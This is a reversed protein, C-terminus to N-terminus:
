VNVSVVQESVQEVVPAGCVRNKGSRKASYMAEDARHVFEELTETKRHMAVGFSCTVKSDVGFFGQEVVKRLKEAFQIAKEQDAESVLLMFEEGGWRSFVDYIRINETMLRAVEKLIRDGMVHGYRDNIDKFDDVDIMVLSLPKHHRIAMGIQKKLGREFGKRNLVGTLGDISAQKALVHNRAEMEQKKTFYSTVLTLLSLSFLMLPFYAPITAHRPPKEPESLPETPVGLRSFASLASYTTYMDGGFRGPRTQKSMIYHLIANQPLVELQGMSSMFWVALNTAKLSASSKLGRHYRSFAGEGKLYHQGFLYDITRDVEMNSEVYERREELDGHALSWLAVFARFVFYSDTSARGPFDAYGGSATDYTSVIFSTIRKTEADSFSTKQHNHLIALARLAFSTCRLSSNRGSQPYHEDWFGGNDNMHALIFGYVRGLDLRPDDLGGLLNLVLLADMTPRVAAPRSPLTGFGAYPGNSYINTDVESSAQIDAQYNGLVYEIIRKPNISDLAGLEYLISIAYRTTRLTNDNLQTPEFLLDPNPVFYGAPHQRQLLWRISSEPEYYINNEHYDEQAKQYAIEEELAQNSESTYLWQFYIGMVMFIAALLLLFINGGLSHKNFNIM